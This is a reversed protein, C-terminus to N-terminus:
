NKQTLFDFFTEFKFWGPGFEPNMILKEATWLAGEAFLKRDHAKHMISISEFDTHINLKHIGKVDGERESEIEAPQNLWERWSIATGSPKDKKHIHHIEKISFVPKNLLDSQQGMLQIARRVLNMGLSFNSGIIWTAGSKKVKENFDAPWQMGTTGWIVRLPLGKLLEMIGKAATTPVFVIVCDFDILDERQPMNKSNFGVADHGALQLIANGTKGTGIVAAKMIIGKVKKTLYDLKITKM